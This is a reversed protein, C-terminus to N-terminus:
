VAIPAKARPKRGRWLKRIIWGCVLLIFGFPILYAVVTIAASVADAFQSGFNSLAFGVPTWASSTRLSAINISLVETEVRQMLYAREGTRAEIESQVQALERNIQILTELKAGAQGRLGELRTRYDALMALKRTSDQIPSALDEANMSRNVITGQGGLLTILQRIGAPKARIRLTASLNRGTALNSQLVVCQEAEAKQCAVQAQEYLAAVKQEETEISIAHEYALYQRRKDATAEQGGGPVASPAAPPAAPEAAAPAQALTRDRLSAQKDSCAALALLMLLIALPRQM